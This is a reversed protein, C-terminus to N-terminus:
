APGVQLKEIRIPTAKYAPTRTIADAGPGMLRNVGTAANHFSAFPQGPLVTHESHVTMEISGHPSVVRVRDGSKLELRELDWPALDLADETAPGTDPRQTMSGSNFRDRRRGTNLIMPFVPNKAPNPAEFAQCFLRPPPRNPAAAPLVTTGPHDESPCPWQLGGTELRRYTIGRGEPWVVRIEEWIDEASQFAFQDGHGLERAVDCLIQWDPRALGPPPVAQRVRQIRREANMFTGDKEWSSAAPLFVTGATRAIENLFLDQVVVLDLRGLARSVATPDPHTHAIDYGIVWLAKLHGSEASELMEPLNLGPTTPLPSRWLPAFRLDYASAEVGGTLRHPDCGMHAAGQVNNQGRLPNVGGGDPGLNGTLLALNVLCRVGATGQHQETVGLGHFGMAPRNRGYLRAAARIQGAEVGCWRSATEPRYGAIFPGFEALGDVSPDVWGEEILVHAMANLLAVDTGPRPRLHITAAAALETERPDIVVLAAGRRVAQLIRAGVVPHNETPNAGCILFARATEIHEFSHTAAGTGLMSGLAAASPAHCVRACCDVNHTGLVLRAFKQTVYAEENTGRASGLIGISGGGWRNRIADLRRAVWRVMGTWSAPIWPAAQRDLSRRILPTTVRDPDSGFSFAYRGKACAHGRNVPAGLVPRTRLLRTGRSAIELECGVGCYPCTTRTWHDPVTGDEPHRDRLAGSPCTDACAGCSVCSSTALTPGDPRLLTQDGRNWVQWVRRGEVEDCIRVCRYCLICRSLDVHLHPHSLDVFPPVPAPGIHTNAERNTRGATIPGVPIQHLLLERVFPTPQVAADSDGPHREALLRLLTRRISQVGPSETQVVMGESIPTTCATMLRDSGEIEVSCLRCSGTPHLRDDHCLAPLDISMRRCAELLSLGEPFDQEVGNIRIVPM